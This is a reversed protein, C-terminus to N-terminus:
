GCVLFLSFAWCLDLLNLPLSAHLAPSEVVSCQIYTPLNCFLVGDGDGHKDYDENWHTM